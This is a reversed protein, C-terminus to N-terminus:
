IAGDLRVMELARSAGATRPEKNGEFPEVGFLTFM